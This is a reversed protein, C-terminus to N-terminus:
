QQASGAGTRLERDRRRGFGSEGGTSDPVSLAPCSRRGVAHAALVRCLEFNGLEAFGAFRRSRRVGPDRRPELGRHLDVASGGCQRHIRRAASQAPHPLVTINPGLVSGPPRARRATRRSGHFPDIIGPCTAPYRTQHYPWSGQQEAWADTKNVRCRHALPTRTTHPYQDSLRTPLPAPRRLTAVGRSITEAGLM